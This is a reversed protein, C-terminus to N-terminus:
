ECGSAQSEDVNVEDAGEVVLGVCAGKADGLNVKEEPGHPCIAKEGDCGHIGYEAPKEVEGRRVPGKDFEWRRRFSDLENVAAQHRDLALQAGEADNLVSREPILLQSSLTMTVPHMLDPQHSLDHLLPLHNLPDIIRQAIPEIHLLNRSICSSIRLIHYLRQLKIRLFLMM